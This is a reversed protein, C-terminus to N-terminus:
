VCLDDEKGILWLKPQTLVRTVFSEKQKVREAIQAATLITPSVDRGLEASAVELAEFTDSYTLSDSVLMVDIDSFATDQQKAVSGFVFAVQIQAKLPELARRLPEALGVTKRAIGCLETYIPCDPNAQYHKQNGVPRQTVLGSRALRALERQVAGSGVGALGILETAYFSRDPQGFLFGLLRQQTGTFLAAALSAYNPSTNSSQSGM